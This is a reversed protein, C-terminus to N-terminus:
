KCNDLRKRPDCRKIRVIEYGLIVWYHRNRVQLVRTIMPRAAGIEEPHRLDGRCFWQSKGALYGRASNNIHCKSMTEFASLILPSFIFVVRPHTHASQPTTYHRSAGEHTDINVENSWM